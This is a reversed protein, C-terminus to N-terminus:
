LWETGYSAHSCLAHEVRGATRSRSHLSTPALISAIEQAVLGRRRDSPIEPHKILSLFRPQTILRAIRLTEPYLLMERDDRGIREAREELTQLTISAAACDRAVRMPPTNVLVGRPALVRRFHREATILEPLLRVNFQHPGIWHRHRACVWGTRPLHAIVREGRSCRLCLPRALIAEGAVTTPSTLTFARQQLGGLQRWVKIRDPHSRVRSTPLIGSERLAQDIHAMTTGNRRAHRAAYSDLTEGAFLRTPVPLQRIIM